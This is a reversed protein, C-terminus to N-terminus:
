VGAAVKQPTMFQRLSLVYMLLAWGVALTLMAPTFEILDVAGLRAGAVYALPGGLAGLVSALVSRGKLWGLSTRVITAFAAWLAIIWLPALSAYPFAHQYNIWGNHALLSDLTAGFVVIGGMLHLESQLKDTRALQVGVAVACVLIGLWPHGYAAGFVCAFWAAEYLGINILIDRM